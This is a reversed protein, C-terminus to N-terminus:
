VLEMWGPASKKCDIGDLGFEDVLSKASVVFTLRTSRSAAVSPFHTSGAGGGGISLLFKLRPYKQRLDTLARM